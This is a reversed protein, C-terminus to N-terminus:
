STSAKRIMTDIADSREGEGLGATIVFLIRTADLAAVLELTPAAADGAGTTYGIAFAFTGDGLPPPEQPDLAVSVDGGNPQKAFAGTSRKEVCTRVEDGQLAEFALSAAAVDEYSQVFSYVIQGDATLNEGEAHSTPAIDVGALCLGFTDSATETGPPDAAHGWTGALDSARLVIQSLDDNVTPSRDEDNGCAAMSLALAAVLLARTATVARAGNMPHRLM